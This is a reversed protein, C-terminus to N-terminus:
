SLIDVACVRSLDLHEHALVYILIFSLMLTLRARPLSLLRLLWLLIIALQGLEDIYLTRAQQFFLLAM